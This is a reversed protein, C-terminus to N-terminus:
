PLLGSLPTLPRTGFRNAWGPIPSTPGGKSPPRPRRRRRPAPDSINLDQNL